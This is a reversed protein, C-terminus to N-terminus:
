LMFNISIKPNTAPIHVEADSTGCNTVVMLFFFACSTEKAINITINVPLASQIYKPTSLDSNDIIKVLQKASNSLMAM